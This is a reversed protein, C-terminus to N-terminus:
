AEVQTVLYLINGEGYFPLRPLQQETVLDHSVTVGHIAAHWAEEDKVIKWLKSFSTGMLDTIGDLWRQWGRRRMGEIKGMILTKEM